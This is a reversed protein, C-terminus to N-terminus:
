QQMEVSYPGYKRTSGNAEQEVLRYQYVNGPRAGPDALMYEGGMPAVILGPLMRDNVLEWSGNEIQREVYFGVTGREVLTDWTFLAVKGDGDPDLFDKLEARITAADAGTLQAAADTDWVSLMALLEDITSNELNLQDLFEPVSVAALEVSGITVFTASFDFGIWYDEVEGKNAGTISDPINCESEIDCLRFRAYTFGPDATETGSWTLTVESSGSLAAVTQCIAGGDAIDGAGFVGDVDGNNNWRDLWACLYAPADTNNVVDVSAVIEAPTGGPPSTFLVGDEDDFNYIDVDDNDDGETNEVTYPPDTGPIYTAGAYVDYQSERETDPPGSGIYLDSVIGHRADGYSEPADGFDPQQLVLAAGLALDQGGTSCNGATCSWSKTRMHYSSGTPNANTWDLVTAIHGGWALVPGIKNTSAQDVTYDVTIERTDTGTYVFPDLPISAGTGTVTGGTYTISTITGGYLTFEGPVMTIDDPTGTLGDLGAVV